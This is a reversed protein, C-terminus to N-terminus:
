MEFRELYMQVVKRLAWNKAGYLAICWIHCKLLKKKFEFIRRKTTSHQEELDKIELNWIQLHSAYDESSAEQM